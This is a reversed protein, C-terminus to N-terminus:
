DIVIDDFHQVLLRQRNADRRVITQATKKEKDIAVKHKTTSCVAQKNIHILVASNYWTDFLHECDRGFINLYHMLKDLSILRAKFM